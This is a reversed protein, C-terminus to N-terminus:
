ILAPLNGAVKALDLKRGQRFANWGRFILHIKDNRSIRERLLGERVAFAPDSKRINEGVCVQRIYEDAEVPSISSMLYHCFGIISPAVFRKAHRHYSHAIKASHAMAKDNAFRAIIEGPSVRSGDGPSTGDNKEYAVVLRGASAITTANEVGDMGMYDSATRASGQDVTTRTERPLGFVFLAPITINAEILSLSRHQGDNLLGDQSIIFPEGNFTWRGARMDQTYQDLKAARIMRNDPNRRLLEAALGPTLTSVESFVSTKGREICENLWHITGAQPQSVPTIQAVTAMNIYEEHPVQEIEAPAGFGGFLKFLNM